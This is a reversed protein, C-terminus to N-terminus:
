LYMGGQNPGEDDGPTGPAQPMGPQGPMGPQAM